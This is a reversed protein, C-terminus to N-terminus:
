RFYIFDQGCDAEECGVESIFDEQEKTPQSLIRGLSGLSSNIYILQSAVFEGGADLDDRLEDFRANLKKIEKIAQGDEQEGFQGFLLSAVAVEKGNISVKPNLNAIISFCFFEALICVLYGAIFGRKM